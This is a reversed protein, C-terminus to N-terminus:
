AEDDVSPAVFMGFCLDLQGVLSVPLTWFGSATKSWVWIAAKRVGCRPISPVAYASCTWCSSSCNVSSCANKRHAVGGIVSRAANAVAYPPKVVVRSKSLNSVALDRRVRPNTPVLCKLLRV